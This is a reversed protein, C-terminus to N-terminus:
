FSLLNSYITEFIRAAAQEMGEFTLRESLGLAALAKADNDLARMVYAVGQGFFGNPTLKTDVVLDPRWFTSFAGATSGWKVDRQNGSFALEAGHQASEHVSIGLERLDQLFQWLVLDGEAIRTVVGLAMVLGNIKDSVDFFDKHMKFSRGKKKQEKCTAAAMLEKFIALNVELMGQLGFKDPSCIAAAGKWFHPFQEAFSFEFDM